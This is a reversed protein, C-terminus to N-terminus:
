IQLICELRTETQPFTKDQSCRLRNSVSAIAGILDPPQTRKASAVQLLVDGIAAHHPHAPTTGDIVNYAGPVQLLLAVHRRDLQHAAYAPGYGLEIPYGDGCAESIGPICFRVIQVSGHEHGISNHAM